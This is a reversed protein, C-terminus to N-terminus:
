TLRRCRSVTGRALLSSSQRGKANQQDASQDEGEEQGFLSNNDRKKEGKTCLCLQSIQMNWKPGGDRSEGWSGNLKCANPFAEWRGDGLASSGLDARLSLYAAINGNAVCAETGDREIGNGSGAGQIEHSECDELVWRGEVDVGGRM